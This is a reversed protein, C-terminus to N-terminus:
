NGRVPVLYEWAGSAITEVSAVHWGLAPDWIKIGTTTLRDLVIEHVGPVYPKWWPLSTTRLTALIPHVSMELLLRLQAANMPGAPVVRVHHSRLYGSLIVGAHGVNAEPDQQGFTGQSVHLGYSELFTVSSAALCDPGRQTVGHEPWGDTIFHAGHFILVSNMVVAAVSTWFLPFRM